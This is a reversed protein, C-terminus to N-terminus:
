GRQGGQRRLAGLEKLDRLTTRRPGAPVPEPAPAPAPRAKKRAAAKLMQTAAQEAAKAAEAATVFGAPNGNLDIRIAGRRMSRLYGGNSCYRALAVTL